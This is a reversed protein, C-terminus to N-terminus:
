ISDNYAKVIKIAEMAERVDHVRLIKVNDSKLLALVHVATTGNGAEDAGVGLLDYIMRKRSVGVLIPLGLEDLVDLERLLRYNEEVDKDFGFGPDLIIDAVGLDHLKQVQKGLKVLAGAPGLAPGAGRYTLVYPVHLQAVSRFMEEEGGAVDNILDVGYEEVAMRAVDARFTDVSVVAGGSESKIIPLAFRLREMEEDVSAPKSHPRTSCAGVDVVAGGESLVRRVRQRLAGETETRSAAYFSDPTVNVIGMVVPEALTWLRGGVHLVFGEKSVMDVVFNCNELRFIGVWLALTLAEKDLHNCAM